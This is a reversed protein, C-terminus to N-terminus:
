FGIQASLSQGKTVFDTDIGMVRCAEAAVRISNNTSREDPYVHTMNAIYLNDMGTKCEFVKQSFNTDCVTAATNSKFVRVGELQSDDFDPFIEPLRCLMHNKIQEEDMSAIDEDRAFYRSLYAIHKGNYNEPGIFNTQEIVGGFPFGEDAINLWYINSLPKNMELVVCVAGFYVVNDIRAALDPLCERLLPSIYPGPITLLFNEGEIPGSGTQVSEVHNGSHRIESIPSNNIMVVGLEDLKHIIADLLVQLSGDLYGLLEDGSKRSNMRQRMRGIMWSLPINEAFPGFKIRLLPLWLSQTTSHGSWKRLWQACSIDENTKWDLIKGMLYSTAAFRFKDAFRIPQFRFLDGPTNFDFIEGDRFVGMTTKHYVLSQHIELDRILWNIEADHTFFHHYFFELRTGGIDFTNLLGGFSEGAEVLTVTKGQRAALYAACLGTIGGGVVVLESM